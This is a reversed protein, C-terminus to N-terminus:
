EIDAIDVAVGDDDVVIECDLLKLVTDIVSYALVCDGVKNQASDLKSEAHRIKKPDNAKKAEALKDYWIQEADSAKDEDQKFQNFYDIINAKQEHNMNM